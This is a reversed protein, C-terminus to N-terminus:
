HDQKGEIAARLRRVPRLVGLLSSYDDTWPRDGRRPEITTWQSSPAALTDPAGVLVWSSAFVGEPMDKEELDDRRLSRFGLPAATAALVQAFDLYRNSINFLIAGGPRLKRQYLRM